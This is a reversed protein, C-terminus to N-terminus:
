AFNLLQKRQILCPERISITLAGKTLGETDAVLLISGTLTASIAIALGNMLILALYQTARM